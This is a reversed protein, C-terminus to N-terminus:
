GPEVTGRRIRVLVWGAAVLAAATGALALVAVGSAALSGHASAGPAPAGSGDAASGGDGPAPGGAPAPAPGSTSGAPVPSLSSESPESPRSPGSSSGPTPGNSPGTSPAASPDPSPGPSPGTSPDTSPDPSPDAPASRELRTITAQAPGGVWVVEDGPQVALSAAGLQAHNGPLVTPKAAETLDATRYVALSGNGDSGAQAPDGSDQWVVFAQGTAEDFRAARPLDPGSLAGIRRGAPDHVVVSNDLGVWVAGTRPDVEVFGAFGDGPPLEVTAAVTLTVADVKYLRRNGTDAFWVAKRVPDVAFSDGGELTLSRGIVADDVAAESLVPGQAALVTGPALGPGLDTVTAGTIWAGSAAADGEKATGIGRLPYGFVVGDGPLPAVLRHAARRSSAGTPGPMQSVTGRVTGTKPDLVHLGSENVEPTEPRDDSAVYLKKSDPHLLLDRPKGASTFIGAERYGAATARSPQTVAGSGTAALAVPACVLVLASALVPAHPKM